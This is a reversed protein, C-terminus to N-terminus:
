MHGKIARFDEMLTAKLNPNYIAAAPHYLPIVVADLFLNKVRFAQGHVSGIPKAELGFKEMIYSTSFNGLTCIIKPRLIELQRDLFPTCTKIEEPQPNRNKPPRCKLINGIFVDGREIGIYKLLEDLLKGARGVFPRGMVDENRGPAEGIFMVKPHPPGEGPVPNTRFKWLGCKNCKAVEDSISAMSPM